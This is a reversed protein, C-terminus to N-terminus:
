ARRAIATLADELADAARNYDEQEQAYYDKSSWQGTYNPVKGKAVTLDRDAALFATLAAGLVAAEPRAPTPEQEGYGFM